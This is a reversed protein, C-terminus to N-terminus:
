YLVVSCSKSKRAVLNRDEHLQTTFLYRTPISSGVLFRHSVMIRNYTTGLLLTCCTGIDAAIELVILNRIYSGLFYSTRVGPM